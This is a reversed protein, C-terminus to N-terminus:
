YISNLSNAKRDASELEMSLTLYGTSAGNLHYVEIYYYEDATLAITESIPKITNTPYNFYEYWYNKYPNWYNGAIPTEPREVKM